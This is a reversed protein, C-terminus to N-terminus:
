GIERLNFNFDAWLNSNNKWLKDRVGQGGGGFITCSFPFVKSCVDM